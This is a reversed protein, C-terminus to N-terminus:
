TGGAVYIDANIIKPRDKWPERLYIGVSLSYIKKNGGMKKCLHDYVVCIIRCHEKDDSYVPSRGLGVRLRIMSKQLM